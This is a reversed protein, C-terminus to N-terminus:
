ERREVTGSRRAHTTSLKQEKKTRAPRSRHRIMASSSFSVGAVAPSRASASLGPNDGRNSGRVIIDGLAGHNRSVSYASQHAKLLSLDLSSPGFTPESRICRCAAAPEFAALGILEDRSTFQGGRAAVMRASSISLSLIQGTDPAFPPLVAPLCDTLYNALLAPPLPSRRILTECRKM